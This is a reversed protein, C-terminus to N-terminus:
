ELQYFDDEVDDRIEDDTLFEEEEFCTRKM